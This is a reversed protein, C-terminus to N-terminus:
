KRRSKMLFAVRFRKIKNYIFSKKWENMRRKVNNSIKKDLKERERERIETINKDAL